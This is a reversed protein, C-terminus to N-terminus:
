ATVVVESENGELRMNLFYEDAEACGVCDCPFVKANPCPHSTAGLPCASKQRRESEEINLM